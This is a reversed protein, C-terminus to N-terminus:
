MSGGRQITSNNALMIIVGADELRRLALDFDSQSITVKSAEKAIREIEQFLEKTKITSHSQYHSVLFEKVSQELESVSQRSRQSRGTTILDMDIQGTVPDTAAQCLALKVLTTAEIVHWKTVQSSLQM